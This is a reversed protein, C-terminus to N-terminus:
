LPLTPAVANGASLRHCTAVTPQSSGITFEMVAYGLVAKDAYRFFRDRSYSYTSVRNRSYRKIRSLDCCQHLQDPCAGFRYFVTEYRFVKLVVSGFAWLDILSVVIFRRGLGAGNTGVLGNPVDEFRFGFISSKDLREVAGGQVLREFKQSCASTRNQCEISFLEQEADSLM